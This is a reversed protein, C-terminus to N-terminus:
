RSLTTPAAAEGRGIFQGGLAALLGAGYGLHLLVIAAAIRWVSAGHRLGQRVAEGLVAV